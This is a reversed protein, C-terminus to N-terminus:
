DTFASPPAAAKAATARAPADGSQVCGLGAAAFGALVAIRVTRAVFHIKM